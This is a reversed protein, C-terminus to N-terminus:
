RRRRSFLFQRLKYIFWAQLMLFPMSALIGSFPIKDSAVSSVICGGNLQSQYGLEHDGFVFSTCASPESTSWCLKGESMASALDLFGTGLLFYKTKDATPFEGSYLRNVPNTYDAGYYLHYADAYRKLRDAIAAGSLNPYLSKLYGAAGAVFPTAQSTGSKQGTNGQGSNEGPVTSTIQYGPACIDVWAGFNSFKTKGYEGRGGKESTACVALVPAYAGPYSPTDTDDNGAAAVVLIDNELLRRFWYSLSRSVFYKGLSMNAIRIYPNGEADNLQIIYNIARIQSSDQIPGEDTVGPDSCACSKKGCTCDSVRLSVIRCSPCVGITDTSTGGPKAAIIGAVHTGHGCKTAGDPCAKGPGGIGAAGPIPQASTSSSCVAQVATNWEDRELTADVGFIDDIYGNGDDDQCNATERPNKFIHSQSETKDYLDPHFYDVGNDVVAVNTWNLDATKGFEYRHAGSANLAKEWAEHARIRRLPPAIGSNSNMEPPLTYTDVYLESQLNPEAWAVDPTQNM